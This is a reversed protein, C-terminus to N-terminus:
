TRLSALLSCFNMGYLRKICHSLYNASYGLDKAVAELSTEEKFHGHLYTIVKSVIDTGSFSPRLENQALFDNLSLYLFAKIDYIKPPDNPLIREKLMSLTLESPKFLAGKGVMGEQASLLDLMASPSFLYLAIKNIDRSTFSHVQFPFIFAGDGEELWEEKGDVTVKTRGELVFVLEAYQHIHASVKYRWNNVQYHFAPKDGFNGAMIRM